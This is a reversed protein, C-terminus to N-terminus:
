AAPFIAMCDYIGESVFNCTYWVYAMRRLIALASVNSVQGRDAWRVYCFVYREMGEFCAIPM